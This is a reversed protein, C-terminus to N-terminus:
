PTLQLHNQTAAEIEDRGWYMPQYRITRWLDAMDIYNPHYAHGSQGTTHVLLSNPLSSLDVIMRMSPLWDVQYPASTDWGTANVNEAGGATRFPGRDFLKNFLPINSMVQNHFTITHLDGWRWKSPEKGFTDEMEAVADSLAASLIMDRNETDPTEINNWWPNDPSGIIQRVVEMWVSGGEPQYSDPLQDSFTMALLNKWFAAYLANPASDMDAQYDWERFLTQAKRINENAAPLQMLFPVLLGATPNKDDGQMQQIMQRTIPKPSNEIMEVIRHARFGYNWNKTLLYPYEAGVVANNATVIYGEQPNVAYPLNDFPIYGQWEYEDTWGPVPIQGDHKDTRIPINGPMQYAINGKIDAYLLNQAPVVFEKAGQRFEQWNSAANFKWIACFICSPELATWRLSLAYQQPVEVGANEGFAELDKYVDSIIPGHRTLRVVLDQTEGGAVEIAEHIVQMDVWKGNYEYQDPNEPNIKEIYLDMVDPGVNTFGWAINANHGIVVGPVGAFSVGSVDLNCDASVPACHLGVEYWISPMQAGLHPDNALYPMGTDTLGGSIVWSNSGIGDFYGGIARNVDSVRTRLALLAPASARVISESDQTTQGTQTSLYPHPVIVPHDAPYPPFLQSVQEPSLTKLLLARSIETDMNGSLDWAMAKAWTLSNLPTWPAPKYGRNLLPLVTYELSLASGQHDRLYANVGEAYADLITRSEDDLRTLDEETVREWGMTRLFKDIGLTNKGLMESLRGASQHRWLDMQWFRDQAHTYGQAFFLDHKTKAYIQPVGYADRYIDVKGDLGAIRLEGDLKPFSRQPLVFRYVATTILFLLGLIGFGIILTRWVKSM